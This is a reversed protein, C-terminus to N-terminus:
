KKTIFFVTLARRTTKSQVNKPKRGCHRVACMRESNHRNAYWSASETYQYVCIEIGSTLMCVKRQNGVDGKKRINYTRGQLSWSLQSGGGVALLCAPVPVYGNARAGVTREVSWRLGVGTPVGAKVNIKYGNNKEIERARTLNKNQTGRDNRCQCQYARRRKKEVRGLM